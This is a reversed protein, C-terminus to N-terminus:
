PAKQALFAIKPAFLAISGIGAPPFVLARVFRFSFLVMYLIFSGSFHLCIRISAAFARQSFRPRDFVTRTSMAAAFASNCIGSLSLRITAVAPM